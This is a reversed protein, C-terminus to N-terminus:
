TQRRWARHRGGCRSRSYSVGTADHSVDVRQYGIGSTRYGFDGRQFYTRDYRTDAGDFETSDDDQDLIGDLTQLGLGLIGTRHAIRPISRLPVTKEVDHVPVGHVPVGHVPVV